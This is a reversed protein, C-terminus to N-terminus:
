DTKENTTVCSEVDKTRELVVKCDQVTSPIPTSRKSSSKTPEEESMVENEVPAEKDSPEVVSEFGQLPEPEPSSRNSSNKAPEEDGVEKEDSNKAPEEDGVEKEDSTVDLNTKEEGPTKEEKESQKVESTKELNNKDNTEEKDSIGKEESTEKESTKEENSKDKIKKEKSDTKKKDSSTEEVNAKGKDECNAKKDQSKGKTSRPEKKDAEKSKEEKSSSSELAPDEGALIKTIDVKIVKTTDLGKKKADIEVETPKEMEPPDDPITICEATVNQLATLSKVRLFPRAGGSGVRGSDVSRSTSPTSTNLLSGAKTASKPSSAPSIIIVDDDQDCSKSTSTTPTTSTTPAQPKTPFRANKIGQIFEARLNKRIQILSNISTSLIEQLKNHVVALAEVSTAAAQARNLNTLTYSLNSNVRAAARVTKEFWEHKTPSQAASGQVRPRVMSQTPAQQRIVTHQPRPPMVRMPRPTNGPVVVGGPLIKIYGPSPTTGPGSNYEYPVAHRVLFKKTDSKQIYIQKFHQECVGIQKSLPEPKGVHEFLDVNGSNKIWIDRTATAKPFAFFSM